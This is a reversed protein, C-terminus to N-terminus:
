AEGYYNPLPFPYDWQNLLWTRLIWATRGNGDIFPHIDLFNKIWGDVTSDIVNADDPHSSGIFKVLAFMSRMANPIISHHPAVTMNPFTVPTHRYDILDLGNVRAAIALVDLEQLTGYASMHSALEYAKLLDAFGKIGVKQRIAEDAAIAA